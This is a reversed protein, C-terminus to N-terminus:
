YHRTFITERMEKPPFEMKTIHHCVNETDLCQVLYQASLLNMYDEVQLMKTESHLYDISSSMKHSGTIIRLAENQARQIKGINSECANTSWVPADNNAISRGLAEYTMLLTEKQQGWNTGALAKLVNNRKSVRNAVQVCHNNFSFFTNLYVGLIKPSHVLPLESDAIKIKRRTNAQVPYPTFLTVSSKPASILLSNEWLFRSMEMLHTNVKQELVSIKVGSAWVTIDDAYCIRRVPETSLPMDAIYFSFLKPSLKSGQPVGNHIIRAKSKVDRCSTVSQRGRIYNSLWRCTVEPLTSRAIKLLLVNHNVTDFEATLNVAVCITQHPPNGQNFCTAVDSRLHVLASTTSHVPLFGHQDIAPFLHTNVTTLMLAEMVKEAPCFLSIPLYSTGLYSDKGPELIPIVISSKWIAPIRCSTVSDNFLTTLYEIAKPGLNKRHFISLKDPGFAKTNSCNSIGKIVQDTTFTVASMLSKRKIERSVLWTEPFTHRGLKSTTFQRSITPLRSQPLYKLTM